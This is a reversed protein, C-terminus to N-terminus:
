FRAFVHDEIGLNAWIEGTMVMQVARLEHPFFWFTSSSTLDERRDVLIVSVTEAEEELSHDELDKSDRRKPLLNKAVEELATDDKAVSFQGHFGVIYPSKPLTALIKIERELATLQPNKDRRFFKAAFGGSGRLSSAKQVDDTACTEATVAHVCSSAGAGLLPGLSFFVEDKARRGMPMVLATDDSASRVVDVEGKVPM